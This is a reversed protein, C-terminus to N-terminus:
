PEKDSVVILDLEVAERGGEDLEVERGADDWQELFEPDRWAGSEVDDFAFLKYEGPAVGEILFRGYQDTTVDRFLDTRRRREPAPVLVVTAGPVPQGDGDLVAGTVLGGQLGVTVALGTLGGEPVEFGNELVDRSEVVAAKLYANEPFGSVRLRYRGPAVNRIVFSGGTEVRGGRGGFFSSGTAPTLMVRIRTLSSEPAEGDFAVRGSVNVGPRLELVLDRLGDGGVTVPLRGFLRQEGGMTVAELVYAGPLVGDIVFERTKQDALVGSRRRAWPSERQSRLLVMVRGSAGRVRGSITVARAPTLRFDIGQREEGPQLKLLVAQAPDTVGPYYITPYAQSDRSSDRRARSALFSPSGAAGRHNVSVYYRGPPLGFLRYEGLDNTTAGRSVPLLRKEGNVYRYRLVSVQAYAVPEGDEDLVRGTIVAAPTLKLVLDELRQGPRLILVAGPGGPRREGYSFRAYRNKSASLRYRGPMVAEFRFRGAADTSVSYTNRRGGGLGSLVLRVKAVPAGTVADFVAGEVSAPQGGDEQRQPARPAPRTEPAGLTITVQHGAFLVAAAAAWGLAAATRLATRM